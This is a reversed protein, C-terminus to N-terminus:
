SVNRGGSAGRSADTEDGSSGDCAKSGGAGIGGASVSLANSSESSPEKPWGPARSPPPGAGTGGGKDGLV